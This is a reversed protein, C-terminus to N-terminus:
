VLLLLFLSDIIGIFLLLMLISFLVLLCKLKCRNMSKLTSSEEESEEEEWSIEENECGEVVWHIYEPSIESLNPDYSFDNQKNGNLPIM